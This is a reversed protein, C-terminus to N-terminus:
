VPQGFKPCAKRSRAQSRASVKAGPRQRPMRSKDFPAADVQEERTPHRVIRRSATMQTQQIPLIGSARRRTAAVDQAQASVGQSISRSGRATPKIWLPMSATVGTSRDSISVRSEIGVDVRELGGRPCDMVRRHEVGIGFIQVCAVMPRLDTEFVPGQQVLLGSLAPQPVTRPGLSCAAVPDVNCAPLM